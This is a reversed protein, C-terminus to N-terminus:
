EVSVFTPPIKPPVTLTFAKSACPWVRLRAGTNTSLVGSGPRAEIRAAENSALPCAWTRRVSRVAGTTRRLDSHYFYDVEPPQLNATPAKSQMGPPTELTRATRIRLLTFTSGNRAIRVIALGGRSTSARERRSLFIGVAISTTIQM